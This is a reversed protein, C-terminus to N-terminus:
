INSWFVINTDKWEEPYRMVSVNVFIYKKGDEGAIKRLKRVSKLFPIRM